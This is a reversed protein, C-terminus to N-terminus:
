GTILFGALEACIEAFLHLFKGVIGVEKRLLSKVVLEEKVKQM